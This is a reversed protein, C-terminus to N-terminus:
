DCIIKLRGSLRTADVKQFVRQNIAPKQLCYLLFIQTIKNKLLSTVKGIVSRRHM